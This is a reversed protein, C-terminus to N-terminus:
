SRLFFHATQSFIKVGSFHEQFHKDHFCKKCDGLFPHKGMRRGRPATIPSNLPKQVESWESAKIFM